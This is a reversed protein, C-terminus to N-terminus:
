SDRREYNTINEIMDPLANLLTIRIARDPLTFAKFVVPKVRSSFQEPKLSIGNKLILFLIMSQLNNENTKIQSFIIVLQPLIKYYFFGKPLIPIEELAQFIEIKEENTKLALESFEKYISILGIDFFSTEGVKIFQEISYRVTVSQNILKKLHSTLSRPVSHLNTMDGIERVKSGSTFLEYLLVGLKFSDFKSAQNGKASSLFSAGNNKFEPPMLSDQFSPLQNAMSITSFDREKLNALLEFGGLKWEGSQNVFISSKCVNGHVSSGEVNVFKLANAIQYIGLLLIESPIDEEPFDLDLMDELPRARETIIYLHADNEITDVVTLVGPLLSLSRLRKLANKAFQVYKANYPQRLDFEFITVESSDKDSTGEYVTWISTSRSPDSAISPVLKDGFTYPISTGTLTGLTKQLFNM